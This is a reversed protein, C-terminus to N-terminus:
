AQGRRSMKSWYKERDRSHRGVSSSNVLFLRSKYVWFYLTVFQFGSLSILCRRDSTERLDATFGKYSLLKHCKFSAPALPKLTRTMAVRARHDMAGANANAPSRNPVNELGSGDTAVADEVASVAVSVV